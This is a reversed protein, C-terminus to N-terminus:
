CEPPPSAYCPSCGVRCARWAGIITCLRAILAYHGGSVAMVHMIGAQKCREELQRAYTEDVRAGTLIDQGLLGLTVGPVLVRGQDDM